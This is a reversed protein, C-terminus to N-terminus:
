EDPDVQRKRAKRKRRPQPDRTAPVSRQVSTEQRQAQALTDQWQLYERFLAANQEPTMPSAAERAGTTELIASPTSQEASATDATPNTDASSKRITIPDVSNSSVPKVDGSNADSTETVIKATPAGADNVKKQDPLETFIMVYTFAVLAGLSAVGVFRFVPALVERKRARQRTLWLDEMAFPEPAHLNEPLPDAPWDQPDLAPADPAEFVQTNDLQTTRLANARDRLRRPAYYLVNNPNTADEQDPANM